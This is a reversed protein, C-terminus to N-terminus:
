HGPNFLSVSPSPQVLSLFRSPSPSLEAMPSVASGGLTPVAGPPMGLALFGAAKGWPGGATALCTSLQPRKRGDEM